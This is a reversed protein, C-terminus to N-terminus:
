KKNKYIRFGVYGAIAAILLGLILMMNGALGGGSKKKAPVMDDAASLLDAPMANGIGAGLSENSGRLQGSDSGSVLDKVAVVKLSQITEMFQNAYEPYKPVYSSFTVLIAIQDKVTALYRTYYNQVESNTHLSDLWIQDAIKTEKPPVEVKSMGVAGNKQVLKMPSKMHVNYIELKDDPGREKATLIIIAEKGKIPDESRCVYESSEQVCKWDDKIEFSIYANKFTRAHTPTHFFLGFGLFLVLHVKYSVLPSNQVRM